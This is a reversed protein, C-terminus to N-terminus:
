ECFRALYIRRRHDAQLVREIAVTTELHRARFYMAEIMWNPCNIVVVQVYFVVPIPDFNVRRIM